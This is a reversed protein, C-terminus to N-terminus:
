TTHSRGRRNNSHSNHHQRNSLKSAIPPPTTPRPTRVRNGIGNNRAVCWASSSDLITGFPTEPGSPLKPVTGAKRRSPRSATATTSTTTTTASGPIVVVVLGHLCCYCRRLCHSGGAGFLAEEDQPLAPPPPGGHHHHSILKEDRTSDANHWLPALLSPLPRLSERGSRFSSPTQMHLLCEM